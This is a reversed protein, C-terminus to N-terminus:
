SQPLAFFSGEHTRSPVLYDRAGEPTARTLIPTEIDLFGNHDLYNRIYNTIKSRFRLKNLMEPRRLDVYRYKLRVDEGVTQHEDLQFPPTEAKNLIVMEKGLVEIQGTTMDPNETGAPRARVLGTIQIVYENRVSDALAFCEETDPDVVVQAIGDRDRLDLFIVGGHDRRRHVWGCLTVTEGIQSENLVGCYHSRM